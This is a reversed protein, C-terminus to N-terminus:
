VLFPTNYLLHRYNSQVHIVNLYSCLFMFLRIKHPSVKAPYQVSEDVGFLDHIGDFVVSSSSTYILSKVKCTKCAGIV